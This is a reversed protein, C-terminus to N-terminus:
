ETIPLEKNEKLYEVVHKLARKELTGKKYRRELKEISFVETEGDKYIQYARRLDEQFKPNIQLRRFEEVLFENSDRMRQSIENLFKAEYDVKKKRKSFKLMLTDSGWYFFTFLFPMLWMTYVDSVPTDQALVEYLTYAVVIFASFIFILLYFKLPKKERTM